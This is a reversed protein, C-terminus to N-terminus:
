DQFYDFVLQFAVFLPLWATRWSFRLRKNLRVVNPRQTTFLGFVFSERPEISRRSLTLTANCLQNVCCKGDFCQCPNGDCGNSKSCWCCASHQQWNSTLLQHGLHRTMMASAILQRSNVTSVLGFSKVNQFQKLMTVIGGSLIELILRWTYSRSALQSHRTSCLVVNMQKKTHVVIPSYFCSFSFQRSNGSVFLLTLIFGFLLSDHRTSAASWRRDDVSAM